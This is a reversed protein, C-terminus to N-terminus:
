PHLTLQYLLLCCVLYVVFFVYKNLTARSNSPDWVEPPISHKLHLPQTIPYLEVTANVTKADEFENILANQNTLQNAITCESAPVEAAFREFVSKNM